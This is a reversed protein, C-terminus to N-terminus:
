RPTITVTRADTKTDISLTINYRGATAVFFNHYQGGTATADKIQGGSIATGSVAAGTYDIQLGGWAGNELFIFERDKILAVDNWTWTWVNGSKTPVHLGYGDTGSGWNGEAGSPLTYANGFLGMKTTSYDKTKTEKWTNKVADYKLRVTIKGGVKNPINEDKYILNNIGSDWAAGYSEVGLFTLTAISGDNFIEYGENFRYKYGAAGKLEIATKEFITSDKSAFIMPLQTSTAWNGPTADGIMNARVKMMRFSKDTANVFVYYLGEEAVKIAPGDKVLTGYIFNDNIDSSGADAAAGVTGGGTAGYTTGVANVVETFQITSNAGIYMLQGYVGPQNLKGGSKNPNLVAPVMRAKPDIAEKAITNTGFVYMGELKPTLVVPANDEDEGCSFMFLSLICLLLQNLLLRKM